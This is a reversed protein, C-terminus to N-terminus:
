NMWLKSAVESLKKVKGFGNKARSKSVVEPSVVLDILMNADRTQTHCFIKPSWVYLILVM